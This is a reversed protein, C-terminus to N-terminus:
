ESIKILRDHAATSTLYVRLLIGTTKMQAVITLNKVFNTKEDFLRPAYVLFLVFSVGNEGTTSIVRM